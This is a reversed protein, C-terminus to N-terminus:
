TPIDLWYSHQLVVALNSVRFRATTRGARVEGRNQSEVVSADHSLLELPGESRWCRVGAKRNLSANTRAKNVIGHCSQYQVFNV